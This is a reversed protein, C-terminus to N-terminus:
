NSGVRLEQPCYRRYNSMLADLNGIRQGSMRIKWMDCTNSLESGAGGAAVDSPTSDQSGTPPKMPYGHQNNWRNVVVTKKYVFVYKNCSGVNCAVVITNCNGAGNCKNGSLIKWNNFNNNFFNIDGVTFSHNINIVNGIKVNFLKNDSFNGDFSKYISTFNGGKVPSGSPGGGVNGVSPGVGGLGPAGGPSVGGLTGAGPSGGTLGNVAGVAGSVVGGVAGTISGAHASSM